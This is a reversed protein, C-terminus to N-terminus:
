GGSSVAKYRYLWYDEESVAAPYFSAEEHLNGIQKPEFLVTGRLAPIPRNLLLLFDRNGQGAFKDVCQLIEQTTLNFRRKNNEIIFSGWRDANIYYIPVDLYGSVPMAVYDPYGIIPLKKLDHQEIYLAV